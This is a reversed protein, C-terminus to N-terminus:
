IGIISLSICASPFLAILKKTEEYTSLPKKPGDKKAEAIFKQVLKEKSM